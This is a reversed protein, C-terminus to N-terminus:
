GGLISPNHTVQSGSLECLVITIEYTKKAKFQIAALKQAEYSSNAYIDLQKGKFFAKYGNMILGGYSSRCVYLGFNYGFNSFRYIGM